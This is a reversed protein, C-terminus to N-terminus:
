SLGEVVEEDLAEVNVLVVRGMEGEARTRRSSARAVAADALLEAVEEGTVITSAQFSSYQNNSTLRNSRLIPLKM